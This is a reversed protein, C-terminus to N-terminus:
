ILLIIFLMLVWINKMSSEKTYPYINCTGASKVTYSGRVKDKPFVGDRIQEVIEEELEIVDFLDLVIDYEFLDDRLIDFTSYLFPQM